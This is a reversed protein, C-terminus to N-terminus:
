DKQVEFGNVLDSRTLVMEATPSVVEREALPAGGGRSM